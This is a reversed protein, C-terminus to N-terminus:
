IRFHPLGDIEPADEDFWLWVVGARQAHEWILALDHEVPQRHPGVFVMGGTDIPYAHVSLTNTRLKDRTPETLHSLSLAVLTEGLERLRGM